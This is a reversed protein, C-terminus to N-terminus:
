SLLVRGTLLYREDTVPGGWLQPDTLPEVVVDVLHDQVLRRTEDATLGGGTWWRGEVLVLRGGPRLLRAWRTLAARPEPLAWLVHRSLIVDYAAAPGPPDAADGEEVTATVGAAAIKTRAAAVMAPSLDIGDVHHGAQALLVTLTGTGCGLDLVDAPPAPLHGTLLAAWAVRTDPDRLGHDPEEDFTAAEADWLARQEQRHANERDGSSTM